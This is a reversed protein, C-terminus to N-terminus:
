EYVASATTFFPKAFETDNGTLSLQKLINRGLYSNLYFLYIMVGCVCMRVYVCIYVCVM